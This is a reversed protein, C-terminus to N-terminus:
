QHLHPSHIIKKSVKNRSHTQQLKSYLICHSVQPVFQVINMKNRIMVLEFCKTQVMYDQFCCRYLITTIFFLKVSMFDTGLLYPISKLWIIDKRSIKYLNKGFFNEVCEEFGENKLKNIKSSKSCYDDIQYFRSGPTLNRKNIQQLM